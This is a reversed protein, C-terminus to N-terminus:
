RLSVPGSPQASLRMEIRDGAVLERMSHLLLCTSAKEKVEVAVCSAVTEVPYRKDQGKAPNVFKGGGEGQRIVSFTNGTQVGDARGLDIVVVHQEGYITLYPTLTTLIYGSLQKENPKPTVDRVLEEGYPGVLDGRNIEQFAREIRASVMEGELKTVRAVGLVLTLHGQTGQKAPHKVEGASRFILYRDGLKAQAKNPFNLYITDPVTLMEGESFSGTIKGAAQIEQPTVFGSTMLRMSPPGGYGIRGSVQVGGTDESSVGDSDPGSEGSSSDPPADGVEVRSPAEDGTSAFKVKNGPYIWHPNAIEPNNSWVKPWYWANGLYTQSLDWLTDGKVVTHVSGPMRVNDGELQRAGRPPEKVPKNVKIGDVETPASGPPSSGGDRAPAGVAPLSFAFAAAGFKAWQSFRM